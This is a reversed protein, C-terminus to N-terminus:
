KIAVKGLGGGFSRGGGGGDKRPSNGRGPPKCIQTPDHSQYGEEEEADEEESSSAQGIAQKMEQLYREWANPNHKSNGTPKMPRPNAQDIKKVWWSRKSIERELEECAKKCEVKRGKRGQKLNARRRRIGEDKKFAAASEKAAAEQRTKFAWDSSTTSANSTPLTARAMKPANGYMHLTLLQSRSARHLDPNDVLLRVGKSRMESLADRLEADTLNNGNAGM